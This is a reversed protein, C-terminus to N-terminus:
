VLTKFENNIDIPSSSDLKNDNNFKYLKNAQIVYTQKKDERYFMASINSPSNVWKRNLLLPIESKKKSNNWKYYRDKYIFYLNKDYDVFVADLNDPVGKWVDKIYKPYGKAINENKYDYLYFKSGKFFYTKKDHPDTFCADIGSPIKGWFSSIKSPKETQKKKIDYKWYQDDKFFYLNKDEGWIFASDIIIGIQEITTCMYLTEGGINKNLNTEHTKYKQPCQKGKQILIEKIFNSSGKKVCVNIKDRPSIDPFGDNLDIDLQRFGVNCKDNNTKLEIEQVGIDGLGEKKCMYVFNGNAKLNLDIDIKKYEEPCKINTRIGSIIKLDILGSNTKFYNTEKKQRDNNKNIMKENKGSDKCYGFTKYTQDSNLETACWGNVMSDNELGEVRSAKVCDYKYENEFVFPFKCQGIKLDPDNVKLNFDNINSGYKVLGSNGCQNCINSRGKFGIPGIEGRTGKPGLKISNKLYNRITLIMNILNIELLVLIWVSIIQLYQNKQIKNVIYYGGLAIFVISFYLLYLYFELPLNLYIM